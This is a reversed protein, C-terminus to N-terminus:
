KIADVLFAKLPLSWKVHFPFAKLIRLLPPKKIQYRLKKYTNRGEEVNKV